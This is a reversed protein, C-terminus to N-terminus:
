RDRTPASGEPPASTTLGEDRPSPSAPWSVGPGEFSVVRWTGDSLRAAQVGYRMVGGAPLPAELDVATKDVGAPGEGVVRVGHALRLSDLAPLLRAREQAGLDPGFLTSIEAPTRSGADDRHFLALAAGRASRTAEAATELSGSEGRCAAAMAALVALTARRADM